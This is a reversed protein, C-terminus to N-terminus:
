VSMKDPLRLSSDRLILEHQMMVINMTDMTASGNLHNIMTQVAMEGMERGPYHVTTLNPEVVESVPDNNFGAVAIDHPIRYGRRKLEKVCSVACIDNAIFLGDPVSDMSLVKEIAARGSDQFLDTEIVLSEDFPLGHAELANRYGRYRDAYVNRTLNGTIHVISNCGQSILHATVEYGARENDIVIGGCDPHDFIRDFFLVPVEKVIFNEFHQFGETDYALSVLLGDVRSDYMTKANNKEKNGSELSQSILLNYGAKNAVSEMGALVASMFSSDLRPVIVGLTSTSKRRLNSAFKNSRYGLEEAKTVISLKTKSNIAPHDSLARSVTAPSIRLIKAIDYITTEKKM